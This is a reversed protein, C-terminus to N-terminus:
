ATDPMQGDKASAEGPLSFQDHLRGGAERIRVRFLAILENVYLSKCANGLTAM